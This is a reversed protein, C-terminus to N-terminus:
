TPESPEFMDFQRQPEPTPLQIEVRSTMWAMIKEPKVYDPEKTHRYPLKFHPCLIPALYYKLRKEGKQKSTHPAEYLDGYGVCTKLFSYVDQNQELENINVSFGNLGPYSMARDNTLKRYYYEGITALFRRRNASGAGEPQKKQWEDSAELIGQSQVVENIDPLTADTIGDEGRTDRLWADWIHQCIFLFVLINGGSLALVDEKGCWILQQKNASAIQLLAQETREKKWYPKADWPFDEENIIPPNHVIDRKSVLKQRSWADAFKASLPDKIALDKLFVKWKPPADKDLQLFNARADESRIYRRARQDPPLTNGFIRELLRHDKAHSAYSTQELRRRFIDDAFEPFIWTRRNEKRRLTEDIDVISYDRQLELMDQTGFIRPPDPWSYHRTALRYSVRVDRSALAKHTIEQCHSGFKHGDKDLTALQEYQDIRIFVVVDPALVGCTRLKEAVRAIPEGIVTKTESIATPLRDDELNLNIYKRYTVIRAQIKKQLEDFTQIGDLYGFWCADSSISSAFANAKEKDARVGVEDLFADNGYGWFSTLTQLLDAVVWYNMFDGYHLALEQVFKATSDPQVLHGFDIVGSKRLNIGAGIFRGIEQQVPFDQGAEHYAIRVDPKLLNLLMTKGSGQLGRLVVNGPQFLPIAHKVFKPSFLKVFRDSGIAETLYLDHFPNIREAM